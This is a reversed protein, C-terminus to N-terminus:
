KVPQTAGYGNQIILNYCSKALFSSLDHGRVFQQGRFQFPLKPKFTCM